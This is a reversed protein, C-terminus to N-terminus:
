PLYKEIMENFFDRQSGISHAYVRLCVEPSHGLRSAIETIPLGATIWTSAALHRLDYIRKLEDKLNHLERAKNWHRSITSDSHVKGKKNVFLLGEERKGIAANLKDVLQPPIPVTRTTGPARHKLGRYDRTEGTDTWASSTRSASRSLTLEGWGNTPLECDEIRLASAESPRLGAYVITMLFASISPDSIENIVKQAITMDAIHKVPSSPTQNAQRMKVMKVPNVTILEQEMAYTMLGSLYVRRQRVISTSYTTGDPKISLEKLVRKITTADVSCVPLSARSLWNLHSRETPTLKPDVRGLSSRLILRLDEPATRNKPILACLLYALNDVETVRSKAASFIWKEEIMKKALDYCTTQNQSTPLGDSTAFIEGNRARVQLDARFAEAQAKIEFSRSHQKNDVTWRVEFRTPRNQRSIKRITWFKVKTIM